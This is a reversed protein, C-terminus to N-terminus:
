QLNLKLELVKFFRLISNYTFLRLIKSQCLMYISIYRVFYKKRM